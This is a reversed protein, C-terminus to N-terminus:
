ANAVDLGNAFRLSTMFPVSQSNHPFAKICAAIIVPLCSVTLSTCDEVIAAISLKPWDIVLIYASHFLSVVTTAICTAFTLMLRMRLRKDRIIQFLMLPAVLLTVDSIASTVLQSIAFQEACERTCGGNKYAHPCVWFIQGILVGCFVIFAGAACFLYKRYVASSTFRIISFLIAL